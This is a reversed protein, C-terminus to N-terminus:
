YGWSIVGSATRFKAAWATGNSSSFIDVVLVLVSVAEPLM